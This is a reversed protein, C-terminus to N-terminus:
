DKISLEIKTEKQIIGMLIKFFENAENKEKENWCGRNAYLLLFSNLADRELKDGYLYIMATAKDFSEQSVDNGRHLAIGIPVFSEFARLRNEKKFRLTDQRRNFYDILFWGIVIICASIISIWDSLKM